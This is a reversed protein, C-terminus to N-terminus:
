DFPIERDFDPLYNEASELNQVWGKSFGYYDMADLVREYEENTLGRGLEPIQKAKYAPYYQSMLSIHIEPSVFKAINELVQISNEVHGPLVLHRIIIGEEAVGDSNIKLKYGKQRVMEKIVELATEPYDRANSYKSALIADAYKYDPLYIDVDGSLAQITSVKDYSSTNFVISPNLGEDKMTKVIMRMQPICHSPTVFGVLPESSKLIERIRSVILTLDVFNNGSLAPLCSIQFNQCYVCKLNCGSFFINCM